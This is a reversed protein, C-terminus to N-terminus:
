SDLDYKFILRCTGAAGSAIDHSVFMSEGAVMAGDAPTLAQYAGVAQSSSYATAAVIDGNGTSIGVTIDGGELGSAASAEEYIIGIETITLAAVAHFAIFEFDTASIDILESVVINSLANTEFDEVTLSADVIQGTVIAAAAALDNTDILAHNEAFIRVWDANDGGEDVKIWLATQDDTNNVEMYLSGKNVLDFPSLDGNPTGTGWLISPAKEELNADGPLNLFQGSADLKQPTLFRVHVSDAM